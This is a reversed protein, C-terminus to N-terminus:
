TLSQKERNKIAQANALAVPCAFRHGNPTFLGDVRNGCTLCLCKGDKEMMFLGGCVRM